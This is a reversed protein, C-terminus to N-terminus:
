MMLLHRRLNAIHVVPITAVSTQAIRFLWAREHGLEEYGDLGKIVRLFVEQTIDEAIERSGDNEPTVIFRATIGSSSTQPRPQWTKAEDYLSPPPCSDCASRPSEVPVKSQPSRLEPSKIHPCRLPRSNLM